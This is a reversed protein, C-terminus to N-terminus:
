IVLGSIDNIRHTTELSNHVDRLRLGSFDLGTDVEIAGITTQIRRSRM